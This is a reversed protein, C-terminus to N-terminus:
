RVEVAAVPLFRRDFREVFELLLIEPDTRVRHKRTKGAFSVEVPTREDFMGPTLLIRFRDVGEAKAEFHGPSRMWVELRATRELAETVLRKRQGTDDLRSWESAPIKPTFAEQIGKKTRTAQVWFSRGQDVDACRLVVSEPRARRADALFADWDVADFDFAHGLEPFEILECDAAGYDHLMDVALRVSFVMAPDDLSGQLDRIPLRTVNELYRFNNQGRNLTIRPSGIMPAIACFLDPHRLALDWALHGGRSIGTGFIREEDVNYHRRMWRLAALAALRERQSFRYGDNPGAESPALILAGRAEAEGRWMAVMGAGQGGTGHFAVILPAPRKADYGAPVWVCLETDESQKGVRLRM